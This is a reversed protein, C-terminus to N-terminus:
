NDIEIRAIGAVGIEAADGGGANDGDDVLRRIGDVGEVGLAVLRPPLRRSLGPQEPAAVVEAAGAVADFLGVM